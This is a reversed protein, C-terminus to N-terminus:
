LWWADAVVISRNLQVQFATWEAAPPILGDLGPGQDTPQQLSQCGPAPPDECCHVNWPFDSVFADEDELFDARLTFIRTQM